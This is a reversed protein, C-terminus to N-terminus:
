KSLLALVTSLKDAILWCLLGLPLLPLRVPLGIILIVFSVVSIAVLILSVGTVAEM